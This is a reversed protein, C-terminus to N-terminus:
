ILRQASGDMCGVRTSAEVLDVMKSMVLLKLVVKSMTTNKKLSERKRTEEKAIPQKVALLHKAFINASNGGLSPPFISLSGHLFVNFISM